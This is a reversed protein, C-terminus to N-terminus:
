AQRVLRAMQAEAGALYAREDGTLDRSLIETVVIKAIYISVGPVGFCQQLTKIPTPWREIHRAAKRSAEWIGKSRGEAKAKLAAAISVNHEHVASSSSSRREEAVRRRRIPVVADAGAIFSRDRKSSSEKVGINILEQAIKPGVGKVGRAIKETEIPAPHSEINKAAVLLALKYSSGPPMQQAKERLKNALEQNREADM